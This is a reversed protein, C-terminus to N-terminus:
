HDYKDANKNFIHGNKKPSMESCAYVSTLGMSESLNLSWWKYFFQNSNELGQPSRESVDPLCKFNADRFVTMVEVIDRWMCLTISRIINDRRIFVNKRGYIILKSKLFLRYRFGLLVRYIYMIYTYLRPYMNTFKESMDTPLTPNSLTLSVPSPTYFFIIFFLCFRQRRHEVLLLVITM